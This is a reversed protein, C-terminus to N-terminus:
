KAKKPGNKMKAPVNNKPPFPARMPAPQSATAKKQAPRGTSPPLPTRAPFSHPVPKKAAM